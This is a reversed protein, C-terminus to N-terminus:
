GGYDQHSSMYYRPGNHLPGNTPPYDLHPRSASRRFWSFLLCYYFTNHRPRINRALEPTVTIDIGVGSGFLDRRFIGTTWFPDQGEPETFPRTPLGSSEVVIEGSSNVRVIRKV